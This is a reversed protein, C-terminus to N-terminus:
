GNAAEKGTDLTGDLGEDQDADDNAAPPKKDM